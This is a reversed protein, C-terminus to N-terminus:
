LWDGKSEQTKEVLKWTDNKQMSITEEEMAHDQRKHQESSMATRNYTRPEEDSIESATALAYATLDAYVGIEQTTKNDGKQSQIEGTSLGQVLRNTKSLKWQNMRVFEVEIGTSKQQSIVSGTASTVPAENEAQKILM